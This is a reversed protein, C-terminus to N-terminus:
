NNIIRTNHQIIYTRNYIKNWLDEDHELPTWAYIDVLRAVKFLYASPKPYPLQHEFGLCSM